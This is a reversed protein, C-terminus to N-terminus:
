GNIKEDELLIDLKADLDKLRDENFQNEPM